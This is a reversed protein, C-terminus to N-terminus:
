EHIMQPIYLPVTLPRLEVSVYDRGMEVVFDYCLCIIYCNNDRHILNHLSANRAVSVVPSDYAELYKDRVNLRWINVDNHALQKDGHCQLELHEKEQYLCKRFLRQWTVSRNIKTVASQFCHTLNTEGCKISGSPEDGHECSGVV